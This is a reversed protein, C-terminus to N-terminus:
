AFRKLPQRLVYKMLAASPATLCEYVQTYFEWQPHGAAPNYGITTAMYAGQGAWDRRYADPELAAQYGAAGYGATLQAQQAAQNGGQNAHMLLREGAPNASGVGFSCGDMTTTFVYAFDAGVTVSGTGYQFYPCFYAELSPDGGIQWTDMWPVLKCVRIPVGMFTAQAKEDPLPELAFSGRLASTTVPTLLIHEHFFQRFDRLLLDRVAAM